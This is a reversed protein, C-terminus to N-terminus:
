PYGASVKENNVFISTYGDRWDTQIAIVDKSKMPYQPSNFIGVTQNNVSVNLSTIDLQGTNAIIIILNDNSDRSTGLIDVSYVVNKVLAIAEQASPLPPIYKGIVPVSQLDPWSGFIIFSAVMVMGIMAIGTVVNGLIRIGIFIVILLLIIAFIFQFAM